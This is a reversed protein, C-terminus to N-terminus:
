RPYVLLKFLILLGKGAREILNNAEMEEAMELWYGLMLVALLAYELLLFIFRAMKETDRNLVIM